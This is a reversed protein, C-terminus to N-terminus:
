FVNSSVRHELINGNGSVGSNRGFSSTGLSRTGVVFTEQTNTKQYSVSYKLVVNGNKDFSYAVLQFSEMRGFLDRQQYALERLKTEPNQGKFASKAYLSLAAKLRGARLQSLFSDVSSRAKRIDEASPQNEQGENPQVKKALTAVNTEPNKVLVEAYFVYGLILCMSIAILVRGPM